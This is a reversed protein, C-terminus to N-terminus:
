RSAEAIAALPIPLWDPRHRAEYVAEYVAKQLILARLLPSSSGPDEGPRPRTPDSGAIDTYGAFFADRCGRVWGPAADALRRDGPHRLVEHRAAYDFSRLMGAVDRMAPAFARRRALPVSPEGEFDLVVWGDATGLVQALHYDGHIRQIALDTGPEALTAYCARVAREHERLEPVIGIAQTLETEMADVMEALAPKSLASTGFAAALEAHLRATAQGLRLAQDSFDPDAAHLSATALSWGDRSDRFFVSLIALVLRDTGGAQVATSPVDSSPIDSSPPPTSPATTAQAPIAVPTSQGRVATEISGQTEMWGQPEMPGQMEIWGLPAAVLKSGNRALAGPVELDPHLGAFPRRLLKLIAKDGFVVSTNSALAPITRGPANEDIVAGPEREFLLPGAGRGAAILRLLVTTLEPDAAGDYAIRGDPVQGIRAPTLAAPVYARLGVLVQYGVRDQGLWVDAMLHRLEPDGAALQLDSTIEIKSIAAGSGAFWRQAPLWASLLDTLPSQMVVRTLWGAQGTANWPARRDPRAHALRPSLQLLQVAHARLRRADQFARWGLV